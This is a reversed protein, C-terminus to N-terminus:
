RGGGVHAISADRVSRSTSARDSSAGAPTSPTPQPRAESIDTVETGQFVAPQARQGANTGQANAQQPYRPLTDLSRAKDLVDIDLGSNSNVTASNCSALAVVCSLIFAAGISRGVSPPLGRNGVGVM